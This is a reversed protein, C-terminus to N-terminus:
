SLNIEEETVTHHDLSMLLILSRNISSVKNLEDYMGSLSRMQEESLDSDLMLEIKGKINAMPTQLEHSLNQTFEKLSEYHEISQQSTKKFLYNLQSLENINTDILDLKRNERVDFKKMQELLHFFPTYLKRTILEGFFILTIIIFVFIWAVTMIVGVLYENDIITLSIQSQISYHKKGIFPYTTVTVFNTNTQLRENWVYEEERIVENKLNFDRDSLLKIKVNPHNQHLQDISTTQLKNEIFSNLNELKGIASQTAARQIAFYFIFFGFTLSLFVIIAFYQTLKRSLNM